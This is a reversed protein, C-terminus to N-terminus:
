SSTLQNGVPTNANADYHFADKNKKLICEYFGDAPVLCRRRQFPVRWVAKSM